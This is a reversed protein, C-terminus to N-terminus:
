REASNTRSMEEWQKEQRQEKRCEIAERSFIFSPVPFAHNCPVLVCGTVALAMVPLLLILRRM